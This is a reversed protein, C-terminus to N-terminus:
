LRKLRGGSYNDQSGFRSSAPDKFLFRVEKRAFDVSVREFLRLTDMGLLIAPRDRLGLQKFPHVDAFGIPMNDINASGLKVHRAWTYDAVFKGGTVSVVEVPITKRIRRKAELRRRLASNGITMKNCTDVVVTIKEGDIWADALILRGLLTRGHVVIVDPGWNEVRKESPSISMKKSGFDITVRRSELSDVGLMGAGGINAAPLAPANVNSINNQSVRLNPILATTVNSAETMTHMRVPEGQGLSLHQALEQSIVTRQAGTDILFHYPGANGIEVPVTMRNNIDKGIAVVDAPVTDAAPPAPAAAPEVDQAQSAHLSLTAAILGALAIAARVSRM